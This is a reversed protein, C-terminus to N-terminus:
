DIDSYEKYFDVFIYLADSEENYFDKRLINIVHELSDPAKKGNYNVRMFDEGDGDYYFDWIREWHRGEVFNYDLLWDHLDSADFGYKDDFYTILESLKYSKCVQPYDYDEKGEWHYDEKPHWVRLKDDVFYESYEEYIIDLLENVKEYNKTGFNTYKACDDLHKELGEKTADPRANYYQAMKEFYEEKRKKYNEDDKSSDYHRPIEVIAEYGIFNNYRSDKDGIVDKLQVKPFIVNDMLKTRQFDYFDIGHYQTINIGHKEEFMDYIVDMNLCKDLHYKLEPKEM